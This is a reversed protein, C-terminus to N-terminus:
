NMVNDVGPCVCLRVPADLCERSAALIVTTIWHKEQALGCGGQPVLSEERPSVGARSLASSLGKAAGARHSYSVPAGRTRPESDAGGGGGRLTACLGLLATSSAREKRESLKRSSGLTWPRTEAPM